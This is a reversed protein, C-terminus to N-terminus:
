SSVDRGEGRVLQVRRTKGGTSVPCTCARGRLAGPGRREGSGRERRRRRWLEAACPERGEPVRESHAPGRARRAPLRPPARDRARTPCAEGPLLRRRRRRRRRAVRVDVARTEDRAGLCEQLRPGAGWEGGGTSVPCAEDKGGYEASVDRGEGGGAAAARGECAVRRQPGCFRARARARAERRTVGPEQRRAQRGEGARAARPSLPRRPPRLPAVLQKRRLQPPQAGEPCPRAAGRRERVRGVRARRPPGHPAATNERLLVPPLRVRSAPQSRVLVVPAAGHAARPRKRPGGFPWRIDQLAAAPRARRRHDSLVHVRHLAAHEADAYLRARLARSRRRSCPRARARVDLARCIYIFGLCGGRGGGGAAVASV